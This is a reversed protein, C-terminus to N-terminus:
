ARPGLRRASWFRRVCKYYPINMKIECYHNHLNAEYIKEEANQMTLGDLATLLKDMETTSVHKISRGDVSGCYSNPMEGEQRKWQRWEFYQTASVWGSVVTTATWDYVLLEAVTFYSHSHGDIGWSDSLARVRPDCDDPLGRPQSIPMFGDGTKVGAFGHGNRVDALIAFLNYNRDHYFADRYNVRAIGDEDKNDWEDASVWPSTLTERKEVYFHIDCGM